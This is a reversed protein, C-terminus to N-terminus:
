RAEAIANLDEDTTDPLSSSLEGLLRSVLIGLDPLALSCASSYVQDITATMIAFFAM